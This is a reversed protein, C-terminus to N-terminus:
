DLSKTIVFNIFEELLIGILVPHIIYIVDVKSIVGLFTTLLSPPHEINGILEITLTILSAIIAFLLNTLGIFSFIVAIIAATIYSSVISLSRNFRWDPDPYKTAATAIFPPTYIRYANLITFIFLIFLTISANLLALRKKGSLMTYNLSIM